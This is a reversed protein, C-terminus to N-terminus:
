RLTYSKLVTYIPGGSSLESKELYFGKVKFKLLPIKMKILGELFRKKNKLRKIRAITLHSMFRKEKPFIGELERDIARQLGGCNTLYIWVIIKGQFKWSKSNDFIGISKAEVTFDNFDIERLRRKAEILIKEDVEGLFKLTLHMNEPDTLCGEFAPLRKQINVIEKKVHEPLHISIFTRM